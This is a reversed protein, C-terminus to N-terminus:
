ASVVKRDRDVAFIRTPGDYVELVYVEDAPAITGDSIDVRRIDVRLGTYKM